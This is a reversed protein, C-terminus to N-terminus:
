MNGTINMLVSLAAVPATECRLIRKGLTALEIGASQALVTESEEFGGESGIFIDAKKYSKGSFIASLSSGGCEYFLLGKRDEEPQWVKVAEDFGTVEGVLPLKGRGCQKAAEDAIRQWRQQKRSGSKDDPRSVCRESLLPIIESAGLEVAKQVIFDMKDSKPICQFLRVYIDPEAENPRSDLVTLRVCDREASSVRCLMDMGEGNCVIALDGPKMRLVCTMHMADAGSVVAEGGCCPAFFRPYRWREINESTVTKESSGDATM